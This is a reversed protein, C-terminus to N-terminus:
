GHIVVFVGTGEILSEERDKLGLRLLKGFVAVFVGLGGRDGQHDGTEVFVESQDDFGSVPKKAQKQEASELGRGPPPRKMPIKEGRTKGM